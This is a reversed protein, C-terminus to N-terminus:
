QFYDAFQLKISNYTSLASDYNDEYSPIAEILALKGLELEEIQQRLELREARVLGDAIMLENKDAIVDDFNEIRIYLGDLADEASNLAREATHLTKGDQLGALFQSAFEDACNRNYSGGRSGVFFGNTQTCYKKAGAYHGALYEELNPSIGHKSCDKRHQGIASDRAGSVGDEYGIARWDATECDAQNMNACASLLCLSMLTIAVFRARYLLDLM